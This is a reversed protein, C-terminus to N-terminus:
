IRLPSGRTSRRRVVAGIALAIFIVAGAALEPDVVAHPRPLRTGAEELPPVVASPPPGARTMGPDVREYIDYQGKAAILQYEAFLNALKPERGFYEVYNLRRFGYRREDPFPRLILLLRPRAGLLDEGVAQYLLREPPQMESPTHYQIPGAGSLADWYTAPLIWLCAFRSALGVRAYNVLPFASGMHYSLVGIPGGRAHTQVAELLEGFEARRRRDAGSGGLADLVAAALVVLAVAAVVCKAILRYSRAGVRGPSPQAAILGLVLTALGFAPYFHYRLDKQQAVAALFSGLMAVALLARARGDHGAGRTAIVALAAFAILVAGPALLLLHLPSTRLYSTFTSGLVLVLRIYDPTLTM